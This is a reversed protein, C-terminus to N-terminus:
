LKVDRKNVENLLKKCNAFQETRQNAVDLLFFVVFQKIIIMLFASRLSRKQCKLKKDPVLHPPPHKVNETRKYVRAGFLCIAM